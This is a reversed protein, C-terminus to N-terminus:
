HFNSFEPFLYVNGHIANQNCEFSGLLTCLTYIRVKAKIPERHRRVRQKLYVVDNLQWCLLRQLLVLSEDMYEGILVLDLQDELKQVVFELQLKTKYDEKDFGLDFLQGAFLVVFHSPLAICCSLIKYLPPRSLGINLVYEIFNIQNM